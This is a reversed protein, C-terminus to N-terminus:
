MMLTSRAERRPDGELFNPSSSMCCYSRALWRPKVSRNEMSIALEPADHAGFQPSIADKPVRRHHVHHVGLEFDGGDSSIEEFDLDCKM